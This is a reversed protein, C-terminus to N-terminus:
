SAAVTVGLTFPNSDDFPSSAPVDLELWVPCKGGDAAATGLVQAAASSTPAVFTVGPVTATMSAISPEDAGGTSVGAGIKYTVHDPIQAKIFAALNADDLPHTNVLYLCVHILGGAGSITDPVNPLMDGQHAPSGDVNFPVVGGLGGGLSLSADTNSAGGSYHLEIDTTALPPHPQVTVPDSTNTATGAANTATVVVQVDHGVESSRLVFSGNVEGSLAVFSGTVDDYWQVSTGTVVGNFLDSANVTVTVTEGDQPTSDTQIVPKNLTAVPPDLVNLANSFSWDSTGIDNTATWGYRVQKNDAVAPIAVDALGALTAGTSPTGSDVWGDPTGQSPDFYQIKKAYSTIPDGGPATFTPQTQTQLTDPSGTSFGSRAPSHAATVVGSASGAPTSTTTVTFAFTGTADSGIKMYGILVGGACGLRYRQTWTGDPPVLQAAPDSVFVDIFYLVNSGATGLAVSFAGATSDANILANSGNAPAAGGSPPRLVALRVAYSDYDQNPVISLNIPGPAAITTERANSMAYVGSNPAQSPGESIVNYGTPWAVVRNSGAASHGKGGFVGFVVGNTATKTVTPLAITAGGAVYTDSTLNVGNEFPTTQDVGTFRRAVGVVTAM